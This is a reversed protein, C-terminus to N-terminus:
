LFPSYPGLCENSMPRKEKMAQAINKNNVPQLLMVLLKLSYWSDNKREGNLTKKHNVPIIPDFCHFVFCVQLLSNLM